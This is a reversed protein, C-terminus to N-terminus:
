DCVFDDGGAPRCLDPWGFEQWYAVFGEDRLFRKFDERQRVEWFVPRWIFHGSIPSERVSDILADSALQQDGFYAALAAILERGALPNDAYLARLEAIATEPADFHELASAFYPGFQRLLESAREGDGSGLLTLFAHFDGFGWAEFLETGREYELLAAAADGRSDLGAIAWWAANPNLPDRERLKVINAYGEEVHGVIFQFSALPELNEQGLGLESVTRFEKAASPWEGRATALMALAVHGGPLDPDIELARRAASEATAGLEAAREPFFVTSYVYWTARSSWVVASDPDLATARDM